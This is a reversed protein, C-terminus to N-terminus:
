SWAPGPADAQYWYEGASNVISLVEDIRALSQTYWAQRQGDTAYQGVISMGELLTRTTGSSDTKRTSRVAVATARTAHAGVSQFRRRAAKGMAGM